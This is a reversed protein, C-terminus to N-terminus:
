PGAQLTTTTLLINSWLIIEFYVNRGKTTSSQLRNNLRPLSLTSTCLKSHNLNLQWNWFKFRVQKHTKHSRRSQQKTQWPLLEHMVYPKVHGLSPSGLHYWFYWKTCSLTMINVHFQISRLKENPIIELLIEKIILSFLFIREFIANPSHWRNKM